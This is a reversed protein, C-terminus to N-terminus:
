AAIKDKGFIEQARKLKAQLKIQEADVM